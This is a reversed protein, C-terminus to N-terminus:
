PANEHLVVHEPQAEDIVSLRGAVSIATTSTYCVVWLHDDPQVVFQGRGWNEAVPLATWSWELNVGPPADNAGDPGGPLKFLGVKVGTVATASFITQDCTFKTVQWLRGKMPGGLDHSNAAPGTGVAFGWPPDLYRPTIREARAALELFRRLQDNATDLKVSVDLEAGIGLTM